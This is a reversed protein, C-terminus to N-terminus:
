LTRQLFMLFLFSTYHSQCAFYRKDGPSPRTDPLSRGYQQCLLSGSNHRKAASSMFDLLGRSLDLTVGVRRYYTMGRGVDDIESFFDTPVFLGAVLAEGHRTRSVGALM